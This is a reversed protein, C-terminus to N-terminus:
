TKQILLIIKEQPASQRTIVLLQVNMPALAQSVFVIRAKVGMINKVFVGNVNLTAPRPAASEATKSSMEPHVLDKTKVLAGGVAPMAPRPAAIAALKGPVRIVYVWVPLTKVVFIALIFPLTPILLRQFVGFGPLLRKM